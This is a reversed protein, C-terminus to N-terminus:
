SISEEHSHRIVRADHLAAIDSTTLGLAALIDRTHEGIRALAGGQTPRADNLQLPLIPLHTVRGDPLRTPALGGGAALHPDDFLDEPRGIPAFPLGASELRALLDPHSFAALGQRVRPLFRERAAVRQRNTGLTPDQAFEEFGFAACFTQWQADSVVGIFVQEGGAVEFVDYIAWASVRVPMPKAAQGTVAKQAMHQGVLYVTTEFLASTVKQGVGTAHRETLAALIGIVGFLGGTVDVVSAGARLPRGPPGTMYALGGMMQAVEDLATRNAYPGALFGKQSCYILRPNEIRLAEYSLGLGDMVGPRFNEILVDSRAALRRAVDLGRPDKLDLSISRKNRNYM